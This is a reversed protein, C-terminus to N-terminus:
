FPGNHKHHSPINSTESVVFEAVVKSRLDAKSEVPAKFFYLFFLFSCIAELLGCKCELM